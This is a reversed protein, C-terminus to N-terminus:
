AAAVESLVKRIKCLRVSVAGPTLGMDEAIERPTVGSTSLGYVEADVSGRRAVASACRESIDSAILEDEPTTGDMLFPREMEEGDEDYIVLGVTERHRRMADVFANHAQHRVWSIFTKGKTPDYTDWADEVAEDAINEREWQCLWRVNRRPQLSIFHNITSLAANRLQLHEEYTMNYKTM